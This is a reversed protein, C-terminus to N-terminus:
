KGIYTRIEQRNDLAKKHEAITKKRFSKKSSMKTRIKLIMFILKVIIIIKCIQRFVIQVSIRLRSGFKLWMLFKNTSM